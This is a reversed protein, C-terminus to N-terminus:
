TSTDERKEKLTQQAAADAAAGPEMDSVADARKHSDALDKAVDFAHREIRDLGVILRDIRARDQEDLLKRAEVGVKLQEAAGAATQALTDIRNVTDKITSGSDSRVQAVIEKLIKFIHPVDKFQEALETMLPIAKDLMTVLRAAPLIFKWIVGLAVLFAAIGIVYQTWPPM